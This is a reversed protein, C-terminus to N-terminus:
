QDGASLGSGLPQGVQWCGAALGGSCGGLVCALALLTPRPRLPAPCSPSELGPCLLCLPSWDAQRWGTRWVQHGILCLGAFKQLLILLFGLHHPILVRLGAPVVAGVDTSVVALDQYPGARSGWKGLALSESGALGHEQTQAPSTDLPQAHAKRTPPGPKMGPM